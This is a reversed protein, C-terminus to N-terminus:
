NVISGQKSPLCFFSLTAKALKSYMGSGREFGAGSGETFQLFRGGGGGPVNIPNICYTHLKVQNNM